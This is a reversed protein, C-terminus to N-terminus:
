LTFKQRIIIFVGVFLGSIIIILSSNELIIRNPAPLISFIPNLEEVQLEPDYAIHDGQPFIFGGELFLVPVLSNSLDILRLGSSLPQFVVQEIKGDVSVNQVWSFNLFDRLSSGFSFRSNDFNYNTYNVTQATSQELVHNKTSGNRETTFRLNGMLQTQKLAERNLAVFSLIKGLGIIEEYALFRTRLLLQSTESSFDWGTINCSFKLRPTFRIAEMTQSPTDMSIILRSNARRATIKPLSSINVRSQEVWFDLSLKLSDLKIPQVTGDYPIDEAYAITSYSLISESENNNSRTSNLKFQTNSLNVVKRIIPIRSGSYRSRIAGTDYEVISVLQVLFVTRTILQTRNVITGQRNQIDLHAIKQRIDTFVSPPFPNESTRYLVGLSSTASAIRLSNVGGFQNIPEQVIRIPQSNLSNSSIASPHEIAVNTAINSSILSIVILGLSIWKIYPSTTLKM